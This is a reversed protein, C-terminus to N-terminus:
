GVEGRVARAANKYGAKELYELLGKNGVHGKKSILWLVDELKDYQRTEKMFYDIIANDEESSSYLIYEFPHLINRLLYIEEGIKLMFRSYVTKFSGDAQLEKHQGLHKLEEAMEANLGLESAIDSVTSEGRFLGLIHVQTQALITKGDHRDPYMVDLPSQSVTITAFGNKRATRLDETLYKRAKDNNMISWAEDRVMLKRRGRTFYMKNSFLESFLLTYILQLNPEAQLGKLDVLIVDNALDVDNDMDFMSYAGERTWNKIKTLFKRGNKEEADVGFIGVSENGNLALNYLDTMYPFRGKTSRYLGLVLELVQDQDFNRYGDLDKTSSSLIVELIGMILNLAKGTPECEGPKLDLAERLENPLDVGVCEKFLRQFEHENLNNRGKDLVNAFFNRVNVKIKSADPQQHYPELLKALELIKGPTPMSIEPNLAFMQIHPKKIGSLNIISGKVLNMFKLYSGREGGVDLICVIPKARNQAEAFQMTLITNVLVSKGSGTEGSVNYNWAPQQSDMLDFTIYNGREDIFHNVGDHPIPRRTDWLPLFYPLNETTLFLGKLIDVNMNAMGPIMQCFVPWSTNDECIWESSGFRPFVDRQLRYDIRRLIEARSLRLRRMESEIYGEKVKVCMNASSMTLVNTGNGYAFIDYSDSVRQEDAILSRDEVISNENTGSAMRKEALRFKFTNIAEKHTLSKFAVSYIYEFPVGHIVELSRGYIFDKPARDLTYVKHYYQDLTFDLKNVNARVGSWLTQRVSEENDDINLFEQTSKQPRTFRQLLDYYDKKTKLLSFSIGLERLMTLVQDMTEFCLSAREEVSSMAKNYQELLPNKKMVIKKVWDKIVEKAPLKPQAVFISIYFDNKFVQNTEALENFFDARPKLFGPLSSSDTKHVNSSRCSVFQVTIIGPVLDDLVGQIGKFLSEFHTEDFSTNNVGYFPIIVSVGGNNHIMLPKNDKTQVVKYLTLDGFIPSEVEQHAPTGKLM